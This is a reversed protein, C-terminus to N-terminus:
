YTNQPGHPKQHLWLQYHCCLLTEPLIDVVGGELLAVMLM